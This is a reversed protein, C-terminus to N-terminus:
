RGTMTICAAIRFPFVPFMTAPGIAARRFLARWEDFTLARCVSLPADARTMVNRTTLYTLLRIGYYAIPHRILDGIIIARRALQAWGSLLEVITDDSFHHLLQSAIVFDFSQPPFPAAAANGRVVAISAGGRCREAAIKVTTPNAELGVINVEVGARRAWDLIAAPIDASGTGVDLVSFRKLEERSLVHQLGLLVCQSGRLYRNLTRLNGLDDALVEAACGGLDMMEKEYCRRM